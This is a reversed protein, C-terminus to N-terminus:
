AKFKCVTVYYDKLFQYKSLLLHLEKETQALEAVYSLREYILQKVLLIFLQEKLGESDTYNVLMPHSLCAKIEEMDNSTECLTYVQLYLYYYKRLKIEKNIASHEEHAIMSPMKVKVSAEEFPILKKEVDFVKLLLNYEESEFLTRKLTNILKRCQKYQAKDFFCSVNLLEDKLRFFKDSEGYFRRLSKLIIEYLLDCDNINPPNKQLQKNLNKTNKDLIDFCAIVEENSDPDTAAILKFFRKESKTLSKVLSLVNHVQEPLEM